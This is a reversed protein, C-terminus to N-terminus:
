QVKLLLTEENLRGNLTTDVANIDELFKRLQVKGADKFAKIQEAPKRLTKQVSKHEDFGTISAGKVSLEQYEAAVYRGLKRTKANYIWLEKAGIIDVPNISVLKLQDDNKKYKIKAVLKAKDTPKKARPKRMVKQEQSLMDCASMIEQYFSILTRIQKKSRHSYGEKLQECGKGSALEELEALDREYFTKIIRAHAAKAGKGRLLNLMKFETPNFNDPDKQYKEIADEIEDTMRAAADRLREQISPQPIGSKVEKIEEEEIDNKGSKIAEVIANSLWEATNKGNNFDARVSPMGRNLCSAIAGMTTNIRNDKLKKVSAIDEKAAGVSEMWRLVAPKFTKSDAELRYFDMAFRFRRSFEDATWTEQGEWSPSPDRIVKGRHEAIQKSTVRVKKPAAKTKTAM